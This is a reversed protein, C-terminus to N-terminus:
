VIYNDAIMKGVLSEIQPGLPLTTDVEAYPDTVPDFAAVCDKIRFYDDATASSDKTNNSQSRNQLREIAVEDPCTLNLLLLTAGYTAANARSTAAYETFNADIIVSTQHEYYFLTRKEALTAMIDPRPSPGAFGKANLYRRIQDSRNVPLGLRQGLADALTSKGSGPLGLFGIAFLRNANNPRMDLTSLYDDLLCQDAPALSAHIKETTMVHHYWIASAAQCYSRAFAVTYILM